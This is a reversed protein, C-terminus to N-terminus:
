TMDRKSLKLGETVSSVPPVWSLFTQAKTINVQLSGCLKHVMVKKGLLSAALELWRQPIKLLFLSVEQAVACARLLETTSIDVGDAVLFTQNAAAPHSICVVIFNVLNRVAVLSRRNHIAGFPLPLHFRAAWKIAALMKAFNGPANAGYVLPPRIIVVEMGTKQALVRLGQEAELKSVAYPEQPNPKDEETFPRESENGNVGISSIFVFRRVGAAAAQKALNLTGDVNVRRFAALPNLAKDNSIHVRAALHVIADVGDFVSDWNTLGDIEGVLAVEFKSAWVNASRTAVRVSKGQSILETCLYKGVFGSAGTILNKM